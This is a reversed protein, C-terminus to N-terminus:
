SIEFYQIKNPYKRIHSDYKKNILIKFIELTGIIKKKIKLFVM